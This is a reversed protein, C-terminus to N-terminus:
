GRINSLLLNRMADCNERDLSKLGLLSVLDHGLTSIKLSDLTAGLNYPPIQSVLGLGKFHLLYQVFEQASIDDNARKILREYQQGPESDLIYLLCLEDYSLQAAVKFLTFISSEDYKEQFLVNGILRGYFLSKVNQADNIAARIAAELIEDTKSYCGSFFKENLELGNKENSKITNLAESTSISLRALEVNVLKKNCFLELVREFSLQLLPTFSNLLSLTDPSLNFGFNAAISVGTTLFAGIEQAKRTDM